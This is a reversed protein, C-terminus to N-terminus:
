DPLLLNEFPHHKKWRYTQFELLDTSLIREHGLAEALIMLSGDALDMPLDAYHRTLEALRRIQDDFM